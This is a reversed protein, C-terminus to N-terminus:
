CAQETLLFERVDMLAQRFSEKTVKLKGSKCRADTAYPMGETQRCKEVISSFGCNGTTKHPCAGLIVAVYKGDRRIRDAFSKSKDYDVFEIDRKEFGINKAIGMMINLGLEQGGIVLIKGKRGLLDHGSLTRKDITESSDICNQEYCYSRLGFLISRYEANEKQLERIVLLAKELTNINDLDIAESM